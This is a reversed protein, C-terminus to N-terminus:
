KKQLRPKLQYSTEGETLSYSLTRKGIAKGDKYIPFSRLLRGNEIYVKDKGQHEKLLSKTAEYVHIEGFSKDSYSSYATILPAGEEASIIYIEEFGNKDIDGMLVEQIRGRGEAEISMESRFGVGSITYQMKGAKPTQTIIFGKGSKTKLSYEDKPKTPVSKEKPLVPPTVSDKVTVQTGATPKPKSESQCATFLALIILVVTNKMKNKKTSSHSQWPIPPQPTVKKACASNQDSYVYGLKLSPKIPKIKKM